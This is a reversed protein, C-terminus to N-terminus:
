VSNKFLIHKKWKGLMIRLPITYNGIQKSKQILFKMTKSTLQDRAADWWVPNIPISLLNRSLDSFTFKHALNEVVGSTPDHEKLHSGWIKAENISPKQWFNRIIELLGLKDAATETNQLESKSYAVATSLVKKRFFDEWRENAFYKAKPALIPAVKENKIEYALTRGHDAMCFSELLVFYNLNPSAPFGQNLTQNFYYAKAQFDDSHLNKDALGFFYNSPSTKSCSRLMRHIAHQTQGSCGIEVFASPDEFVGEQEFYKLLLERQGIVANKILNSIAPSKLWKRIENHHELPIVENEHRFQGPCQPAKKLEYIDIKLRQSIKKPTLTPHDDLLWNLVFDDIEIITCSRWAERSGYLYKLNLRKYNSNNEKLLKSIEWLLQGDRAVFFLSRVKDEIAQDLVWKAYSCLVPAAVSCAIQELTLYEKSLTTESIQSLRGIRSVGAWYSLRGSTCNNLKELDIERNTLNGSKYHVSDIGVSKAGLFDAHYCNGIHSMRNLPINHKSSIKRFMSGDGKSAKDENSVYLLDNDQMIGERLLLQKLFSKPLYMDSVHAILGGDQRVKSIKDILDQNGQIHLSEELLEEEILPQILSSEVQSIYHFHRYIDKINFFINEAFAQKEAEIRLSSFLQPELDFM